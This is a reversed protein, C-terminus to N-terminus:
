SDLGRYHFYARRCHDPKHDFLRAMANIFKSVFVAWRHGNFAAKGVYSSIMQRGSPFDALGILYLPALWLTCWLIDVSKWVASCSTRARALAVSQPFVYQLVRVVVTLAFLLLHLYLVLTLHALM